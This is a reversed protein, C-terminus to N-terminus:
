KHKWIHLIPTRALTLMLDGREVLNLRLHQIAISNTQLLIRASSLIWKRNTDPSEAKIIPNKDNTTLGTTKHQSKHMTQYM